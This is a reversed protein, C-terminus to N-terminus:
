LKRWLIKSIIILSAPSATLFFLVGAASNSSVDVPATQKLHFNKVLLSFIGVAWVSDSNETVTPATQPSQEQPQVISAKMTGREESDEVVEIIPDM